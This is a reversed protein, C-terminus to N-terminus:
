RANRCQDTLASFLPRVKGKASEALPSHPTMILKGVRTGAFADIREVEPASLDPVQETAAGRLERLVNRESQLYSRGPTSEFFSIAQRLEDDSFETSYAEALAPLVLEPTVRTVVCVIEKEPRGDRSAADRYGAAYAEAYLAHLESVKLLHAALEESGKRPSCGAACILVFAAAGALVQKFTKPM